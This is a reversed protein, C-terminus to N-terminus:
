MVDLAGNNVSVMPGTLAIQAGAGDKVTASATGELLAQATGKMQLNAMATMQINANATVKFNLCKIEVDQALSTISVKNNAQITCNGAVTIAIEGPPTSKIEVKNAMTKDIISINEAGPTDDLVIQHGAPTKWMRKTVKGGIVVTASPLPPRDLMNWLSGVVYPFNVDGQEFAVLVEDNIEPINYFGHMSGAMPTAVRCWNSEVPPLSGLFPFKVKVRGQGLPDMNNTVIGNVVGYIRGPPPADNSLMTTLTKAESGDARFTTTYGRHDCVHTASTILYSGSYKLGVGAVMVTRGATVQPHGLCMGEAQLFDRTIEGSKATALAMAETIMGVPQDTVVEKATAGFMSHAAAYDVALTAGGSTSPIVPMLGVTTQKLKPDYAQVTVSNVQGAATARPTFNILNQLWTLLPGPVPIGSKKFMLTGLENMALDYGNRTAIDRLFEMDTQNNQLVYERVGSTPVGTVPIGNEGGIMTVIQYDNSMLFTRTKRGRHLRHSKDYGRVVLEASGDERFSPELATIEGSILVGPVPVSPTNSAGVSKASIKVLSGISLLPSDIVPYIGALPEDQLHIEFMSPMHLSTDVVIRTVAADIPPTLPVGNLSITIYDFSM